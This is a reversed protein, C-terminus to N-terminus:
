RRFIRPEGYHEKQIAIVSTLIQKERMNLLGPLFVKWNTPVTRIIRWCRCDCAAMQSIRAPLHTPLPDWILLWARNYASHRNQLEICSRSMKRRWTLALKEIKYEDTSRVYIKLVSLKLVRTKSVRVIVPLSYKAHWPLPTEWIKRNTM